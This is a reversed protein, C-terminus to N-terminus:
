PDTVTFFNRARRLKGKAEWIVAMREESVWGKTYAPWLHIVGNGVGAFGMRIGAATGAATGATETVTPVADTLTIRPAVFSPRRFLRGFGDYPLNYTVLSM